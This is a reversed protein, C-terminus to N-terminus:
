STAHQEMDGVLQELEAFGKDIVYSNLAALIFERWEAPMGSLRISYYGAVGAEHAKFVLDPESSMRSPELSLTFPMPKQKVM